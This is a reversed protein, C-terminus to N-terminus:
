DRDGPYIVDTLRAAAPRLDRWDAAAIEFRALACPPFDRLRAAKTDEHRGGLHLALEHLGPNHGIVIVSPIDADLLGIEEILTEVPALYLSEEFRAPVEAELGARLGDFTERTRGATSVLALAPRWGRVALRRGTERVQRRGHGDLPRDRDDGGPRAPSSKGHRLIYLVKMTM